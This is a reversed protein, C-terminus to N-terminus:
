QHSARNILMAGILLKYRYGASKSKTFIVIAGNLENSFRAARVGM